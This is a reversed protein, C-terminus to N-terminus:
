NAKLQALKTRIHRPLTQESSHFDYPTANTVKSNKKSSLYQSTITSHIHSHITLHHYLSHTLKKRCKERTLDPKSIVINTHENNYFITTKMNRPLASYANVDRLLHTQNLQRLQIVYLKLHPDM